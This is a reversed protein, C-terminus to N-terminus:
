NNKKLLEKAKNRVIQGYKRKDDLIDKLYLAFQNIEEARKDKLWDLACDSWHESGNKLGAEILILDPFSDAAETTEIQEFINDKDMELFPLLSLLVKHDSLSLGISEGRVIVSWGSRGTYELAVGIATSRVSLM